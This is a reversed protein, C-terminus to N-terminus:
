TVTKVGRESGKWQRSYPPTMVLERTSEEGILQQLKVMLRRMPHHRGSEWDDVTGPDIGLKRAFERQSLGHVKRYRRLIEALTTGPPLPDYGLFQIISPLAHIVPTTNGKEWNVVTCETVGLREAAQKQTLRL